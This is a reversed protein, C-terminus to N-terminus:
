KGQNIFTICANSNSLCTLYYVWGFLCLRTHNVCENLKRFQKPNGVFFEGGIFHELTEFQGRETIKLKSLSILSDVQFYLVNTIGKLQQSDLTVAFVMLSHLYSDADIVEVQLPLSALM